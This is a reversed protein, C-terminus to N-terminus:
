RVTELAELPIQVFITSGQGPASEIAITGDLLAVREKM